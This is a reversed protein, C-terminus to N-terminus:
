VRERSAEILRDLDRVDLLLRRMEGDGCLPLRVRPLRGSEVLARISWASVSLYAAASRVDLLRRASPSGSGGSIRPPRALGDGGTRGAVVRGSAGVGSMSGTARETADLPWLGRPHAPAQRTGARASDDTKIRTRSPTM